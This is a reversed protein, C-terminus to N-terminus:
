RDAGEGVSLTTPSDGGHAPCKARFRWVDGRPECGAATLREHLVALPDAVHAQPAIDARSGSRDPVAVRSAPDLTPSPRWVRLMRKSGPPEGLFFVRRAIHVTM